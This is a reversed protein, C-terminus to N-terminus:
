NARNTEYCKSVVLNFVRGADAAAELLDNVLGVEGAAAAHELPMRLWERGEEM